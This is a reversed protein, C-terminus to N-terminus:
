GAPRHGWRMLFRVVARIAIGDAAVPRDIQFWALSV